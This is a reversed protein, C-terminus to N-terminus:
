QTKEKREKCFSRARQFLDKLESPIWAKRELEEYAERLKEYSHETIRRRHFVLASAIAGYYVVTAAAQKTQPGGRRVLAKAYDKLTKLVALDTSSDLLLDNVTRDTAALVKDSPWNLVAHLSDPLAPDLPLKGHLMDQLVQAPTRSAGTNGQANNDPLGVALLRALLEPSLGYTTDNKM